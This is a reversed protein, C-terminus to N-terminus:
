QLAAAVDRFSLRRRGFGVGLLLSCQKQHDPHPAPRVGYFPVMLGSMRLVPGKVRPVIRSQPAHDNLRRLAQGLYRM